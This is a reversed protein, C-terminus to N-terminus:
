GKKPGSVAFPAGQPDLGMVIWSGGPVEHPGMQITAGGDGIAKAAADIDAVTIYYRWAAPQGPATMMGGAHVGNITFTQYTGMDGMDVAMAKEWGFLGAYFSWAAEWDSTTLEHWGIAGPTAPDLDPAPEGAGRFLMFLAGQPDTCVAFRGVMPIDDPGFHVAGGAAKVKGTMADVDDVGIYGRWSPRKDEMMEMIPMVGAVQRDGVKALRYDMGPMGSPEITWASIGEYFAQAADPDSTALEYWVFDGQKM